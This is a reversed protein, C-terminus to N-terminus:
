ASPGGESPSLRGFAEAVRGVTVRPDEVIIRAGGIIDIFGVERAYRPVIHVHFHALSAGSVGGCNFGVNFGEAGYLERLVAMAALQLRHLEAVEAAQLASPEELHREPFILLHGPNYPYLNASVVFGGSRHCELRTVTDRRGAVECLICEVDPREGRAYDLKAPVFLHHCRM